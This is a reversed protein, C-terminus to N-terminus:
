LRGCAVPDSAPASDVLDYDIIFTYSGFALYAGGDFGWSLMLRFRNTAHLEPTSPPRPAPRYAPTPTVVVLVSRYYESNETLGVSHREGFYRTTLSHPSTLRQVEPAREFLYREVNMARAFSLGRNFDTDGRRSALGGIWVSTGWGGPTLNPLVIRDLAERHRPLLEPRGTTFDYLLLRQGNPPPPIASHLFQENIRSTYQGLSM